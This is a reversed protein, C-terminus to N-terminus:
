GINVPITIRIVQGHKRVPQWIRHDNLLSKVAILLAYVIELDELDHLRVWEEKQVFSSIKCTSHCSKWGFVINKFVAAGPIGSREASDMLLGLRLNM